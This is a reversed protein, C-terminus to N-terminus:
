AFIHAIFNILICISMGFITPLLFSLFTWKASKTENYVTCLTTSCPSHMIFFVIVCIATMISWGNSLFMSYAGEINFTNTLVGKSSYLLMSIPLIIENAGIGLIFSTLIVGDLGMLKGLPEFFSVIYNSLPNSNVKINTLLYLIIGIPFAVSVSRLLVYISKNIISSVLIRGIKPMRFPPLELSFSSPEGKLITKSLLKSAIMSMIVAFVIFLSLYLASLFVNESKTFFMTILLIISPFKGNCPIFSNTLIAILRERKSDIIRSSTVGVCNCGFGMCSTLSQKACCGCKKFANDLNFAVRPLYGIDELLTFLPFFIMMPVMMVSVVISLVRYGGYIIMEILFVPLKFFTLIKFLPKEFSLLFSSILRSPYNAGKLTLYFIVILLLFMVLFGTIKGTLIRDPLSTRKSNNKVVCKSIIDSSAKNLTLAIKDKVADLDVSSKYLYNVAKSYAKKISILKLKDDKLLNELYDNIYKDGELIRLSLFRSSVNTKVGKLSKEIIKVANEIRKDYSVKIGGCKITSKKFMDDIGIKKKADIKIVELNLIESLKKYDINIGKKDATLSFNVCIRVDKFAESIQLVLNLNRELFCADCIVYVCDCKQSFVFDLAYSEEKSSPKLSYTGPTDCILYKESDKEYIGYAIDVTIGGWNGTKEKLGTLSNFLTSKGVNPNGFLIFLKDYSLGKEGKFSLSNKFALKHEM